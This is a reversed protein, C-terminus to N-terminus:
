GRVVDKGCGQVVGRAGVQLGAGLGRAVVELHEPTSEAMQEELCTPDPSSPGSSSIDV